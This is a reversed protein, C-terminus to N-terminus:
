NMKKTQPLGRLPYVGVRPGDIKAELANVYSLAVQSANNDKKHWTPDVPGRLSIRCLRRWSILVQQVEYNLYSRKRLASQGVELDRRRNNM